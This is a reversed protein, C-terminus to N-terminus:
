SHIKADLMAIKALDRKVIKNVRDVSADIEAMAEAINVIPRKKKVETEECVEPINKEKHIDLYNSLSKNINYM